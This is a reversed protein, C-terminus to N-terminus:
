EPLGGAPALTPALAPTPAPAPAPGMTTGIATGIATEIATEIATIMAAFESEQYGQSQFVIIGGRDVVYSRPIFATAYKGYAARQPDLGVPFTIGHQATWASVVAATEERSVAIMAFDPGAFREWVQAQLHPMEAVCPPCWTAWWNVLVVKGRHESLTFSGSALTDLTAVTFDPAAEGVRTLTAAAVDQAPDAAPDAAIQAQPGSRGACGSGPAVALVVPLFLCALMRWPARPM